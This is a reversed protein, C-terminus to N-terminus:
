IFYVPNTFDIVPRITTQGNKKYEVSFTCRFNFNERIRQGEIKAIELHEFCVKWIQWRKCTPHLVKAKITGAIETECGVICCQNKKNM